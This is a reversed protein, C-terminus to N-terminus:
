KKIRWLGTKLYRLVSNHSERQRNNFDTQIYVFYDGVEIVKATGVFGGKGYFMDVLTDQKIGKATLTDKYNTM